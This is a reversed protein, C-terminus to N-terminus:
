QPTTANGSARDARDRQKDGKRVKKSKLAKMEDKDAKTQSKDAKRDAKAQSQMAKNDQVNTQATVPGALVVALTVASLVGLAKM